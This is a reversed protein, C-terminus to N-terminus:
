AERGREISGRGRRNAGERSPVDCQLGSGACGNPDNPGGVPPLLGADPGEARGDNTDQLADERSPEGNREPYVGLRILAGVKRADSSELFSPRNVADDRTM